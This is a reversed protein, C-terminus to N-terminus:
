GGSDSMKPDLFMREIEAAFERDGVFATIEFNLRFSRNDFNATGVSAIGDDVEQSRGHAVLETRKWFWATEM